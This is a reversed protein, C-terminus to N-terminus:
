TLTNVEGTNYLVMIVLIVNTVNNINLRGETNWDAGTGVVTRTSRRGRARPM